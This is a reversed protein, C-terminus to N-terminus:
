MPHRMNNNFQQQNRNLANTDIKPKTSVPTSSKVPAQVPTAVPASQIITVPTPAVKIEAPKFALYSLLGVIFLGIIILFYKM